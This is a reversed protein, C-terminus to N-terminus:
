QSESAIESTDQELTATSRRYQGPHWGMPNRAPREFARWVSSFATLNRDTRPRHWGMSAFPRWSTWIWGCRLACSASSGRSREKFDFAYWDSDYYCDNDRIICCAHGEETGGSLWCMGDRDTVADDSNDKSSIGWGRPYNRFGGHVNMNPIPEGTSSDVVKVALRATGGDFLSGFVLVVGIISKM